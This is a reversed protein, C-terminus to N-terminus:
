HGWGCRWRSISLATFGPYDFYTLVTKLLTLARSFDLLFRRTYISGNPSYTQTRVDMFGRIIAGIICPEMNSRMMAIYLPTIAFM